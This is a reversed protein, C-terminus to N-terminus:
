QKLTDLIMKPGYVFLLPIVASIAIVLASWLLYTRDYRSIIRIIKLPSVFLNRDRKM